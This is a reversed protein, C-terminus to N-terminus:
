DKKPKPHIWFFILFYTYFLDNKNDEKQINVLYVDCYLFFFQYFFFKMQQNM